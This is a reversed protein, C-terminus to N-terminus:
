ILFYEFCQVYSKNQCIYLLVSFYNLNTLFQSFAQLCSAQIRPQIAHKFKDRNDTSSKMITEWDTQNIHSLKNAKVALNTKAKQIKLHSLGCAVAKWLFLKYGFSSKVVPRSALMGTTLDAFHRLLFTLVYAIKTSPNTQDFWYPPM